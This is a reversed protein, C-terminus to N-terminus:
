LYYKKKKNIRNMSKDLVEFSEIVKRLFIILIILIILIMIQIKQLIFLKILITM